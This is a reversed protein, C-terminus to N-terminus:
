LLCQAGGSVVVCQGTIFSADPGVLFNAVGALEDVSGLRHMPHAELRAKQKDEPIANYMDTKIYGPAICNVTINKAAVEKALTATLGMVAGKSASYNTQGPNGWFSVSAINLIRGYQKERMIPVVAKCLNFTGGINVDMVNHWEDFSMKHFIRDKTIGANNVLIDITGFKELVIDIAKTVNDYDSVDCKIPIIREGSPDLEKATKQALEENFELIAIGKANEEYLRKVIAAGIGKGAGTVIAYKGTLSEM